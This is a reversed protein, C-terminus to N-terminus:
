GGTVSGETGIAYVGGFQTGVFASGHAPVVCCQPQSDVDFTWLVRGSAAELAYVRQEDEAPVYVIGDAVTPARVLGDLEVRWLESGTSASVAVLADQGGTYAVGNSVAPAHLPEAVNWVFDGSASDFASLSGAVGDSSGAYVLGDAVVTTGTSTSGTPVRWAIGGSAADVAVLDGGAESAYVRGDAVAPSHVEGGSTSVPVTWRLTGSAADLAVLEGDAAGIFASDGDVTPDSAYAAQESRWLESGTLADVAALHGDVDRVFVRGESVNPGSVPGLEPAYSWREEGTAIDLAHLTGDDSTAYVLGGVIAINNVASGEAQYRWSLVPDGRPGEHGEGRHAADARLMPWDGADVPTPAQLLAAGGVVGATAAVALALTLALIAALRLTPSGVALQSRYRMPPEKITALWRPLPRTRRAETVIHEVSSPRSSVRPVDAFRDVVFREFDFSDNM